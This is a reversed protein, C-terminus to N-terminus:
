LSLSSPLDLTTANDHVGWDVLGLLPPELVPLCWDALKTPTFKALRM